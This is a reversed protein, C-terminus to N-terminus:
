WSPQITLWASPDTCWCLCESACTRTQYLPTISSLSSRPNPRCTWRHKGCSLSHSSRDGHTCVPRRAHLRVCRWFISGGFQHMGLAASDAQGVAQRVKVQKFDVKKELLCLLVAHSEPSLAGNIPDNSTWVTWGEDRHDGRDGGRYHCVVVRRVAPHSLPVRQKAVTGGCQSSAKVWAARSATLVSCLRPGGAALSTARRSRVGSSCRQVPGLCQM